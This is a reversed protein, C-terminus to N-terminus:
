GHVTSGCYIKVIPCATPLHVIIFYLHESSSAESQAKHAMQTM